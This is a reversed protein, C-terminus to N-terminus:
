NFRNRESKTHPFNLYKLERWEFDDVIITFKFDHFKNLRYAYSWVRIRDGFGTDSMSDWYSSKKIKLYGM